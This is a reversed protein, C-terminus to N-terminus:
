LSIQDKWTAPTLGLTEVMHTWRESGREKRDMYKMLKQRRHLLLRLNRKNHKDKYGRNIQLANSLNHIKATLIAIQVESSGTDPGCRGIKEEGSVSAPSKSVFISDTRHRGFENIIRQVNAHFRDKSSGNELSTIRNLAELVKQHNEDHQKMKDEKTEPEMQSEVVGIMPKTLQYAHQTAAEVEADSLFNNRIGTNAVSSQADSDQLGATELSEIFPTKKGVIPDGWAEDRERSLEERRQVNAAKRQQAQAWRYPDQKAKRKKERQSLNATQVIPLFNPTLPKAAPRLCLNLSGLSPLAPIRPPM